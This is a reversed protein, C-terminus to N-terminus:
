FCLEFLEKLLMCKEKKRKGKQRGIILKTILIGESLKDFINM